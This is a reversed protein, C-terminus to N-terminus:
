GTQGSTDASVRMKAALAAIAEDDVMSVFTDCVTNEVDAFFIAYIKQMYRLASQIDMRGGSLLSIANADTIWIWQGLIIWDNELLPERCKLEHECLDRLYRDATEQLSSADEACITHFEYFLRAVDPYEMVFRYHLAWLYLIKEFGKLLAKKSYVETLEFQMDEYASLIERAIERKCSFHKYLAAHSIGVEAAIMRISTNEYGNKLFLELAKAAIIKGSNGKKRGM